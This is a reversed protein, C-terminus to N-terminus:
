WTSSSWLANIIQQFEVLQLMPSLQGPPIGGMKQRAKNHINSWKRDNYDLKPRQLVAKEELGSGVEEVM